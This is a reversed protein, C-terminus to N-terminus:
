GLPKFMRKDHLHQHQPADNFQHRLSIKKLDRSKLTEISLLTPTFCTLGVKIVILM